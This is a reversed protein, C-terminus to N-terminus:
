VAGEAKFHRLVSNQSGRVLQFSFGRWLGVCVDSGLVLILLCLSCTLFSHTSKDHCANFEIIIIHLDLSETVSFLLSKVKGHSEFFCELRV